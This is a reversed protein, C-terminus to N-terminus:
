PRGTSQATVMRAYRIELPIRTIVKNNILISFWYLGEFKYPIDLVTILNVGKGEGEFNVSISSPPLTEGSPQEPIITLEHRGKASGSKITLVLTLPYHFEPMNEPPNTGREPHMIIDVVRILSLVGDGERLVRECFAALQIYPGREFPNILQPNTEKVM